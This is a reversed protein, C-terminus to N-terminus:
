STYLRCDQIYRAVAGPVLGKIPLGQAVRERIQSASLDHRLPLPIMRYGARARAPDPRPFVVFEVLAALRRPHKWRPLAKWQDSGMIWFLAAGPHQARFHEATDLSYSVEPGDMEVRSVEAWAEGRVLARTMALRASESAMRRGPKHPSRRCPIFIVKDLALLEAAQRAILYHGWHPPDFTGGFLALRLAPAKRPPAM